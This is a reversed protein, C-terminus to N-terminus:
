ADNHDPYGTPELPTGPMPRGEDLERLYCLMRSGTGPVTGAFGHREYFRRADTDIEDVNIRMEIADRARVRELAATILASGISQGRLGPVVYLEELEALPGQGYPTPRLTLCAMGVAEDGHDALLVLVDGRGLLEGFRAAFDQASPTPTDFETNFDHLLRGVTPADAATAQRVGAGPVDSTM